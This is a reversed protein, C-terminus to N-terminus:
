QPNLRGFYIINSGKAEKKAKRMNAYYEEKFFKNVIEEIERENVQKLYVILMETYDETKRNKLGVRGIVRGRPKIEDFLEKNDGAIEKCENYWPDELDSDVPIVLYKKVFDTDSSTLVYQNRFVTRTVTIVREELIRDYEKGLFGDLIAEFKMEPALSLNWAILQISQDIYAIIYVVLIVSLFMIGILAWSQAPTLPLLTGNSVKEMFENM